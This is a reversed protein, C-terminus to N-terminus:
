PAELGQQFGWLAERPALGVAHPSTGPMEDEVVM